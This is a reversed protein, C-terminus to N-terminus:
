NFLSFLFRVRTLLKMNSARHCTTIYPKMRIIDERMKQAFLIVENNQLQQAASQLTKISM